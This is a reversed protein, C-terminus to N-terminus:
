FFSKADSTAYLLVSKLIAETQAKKILQLKETGQNLFTM